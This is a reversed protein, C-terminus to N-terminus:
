PDGAPRLSSSEPITVRLLVPETEGGRVRVTRSGALNAGQVVVTYEQDELTSFRFWGDPDTPAEAEQFPHYVQVRAKPVPRGTGDEIIRGRLILGRRLQLIMPQGDFDISQQIPLYDRQFTLRLSYEGHVQRNVNELHFWGERDTVMGSRSFGHDFPTAYHLQVPVGPAPSGDPRLVRGTMTEGDAPLSLRVHHVPEAGTLPISDSLAYTDDHRLLLRYVTDLPLPTLHFRSGGRLDLADSIDSVWHSSAVDAPRQEFLISIRAGPVAPQIEGFIAGARKLPVTVIWPDGGVPVDIWDQGIRLNPHYGILGPAEIRVKGPVEVRIRAEGNEIPLAEPMTFHERPRHVRKRVSLTGSPPPAGDPPAFRFVVEREPQEPEPQTLDIVLDEIPDTLELDIRRAGATIALPGEWLDILVFEGGGAVPTVPVDRSGTYNAYMSNGQRTQTRWGMVYRLTPQGARNTPLDDLSGIVRGAIRLPARLAVQLPDSETGIGRLWEFRHGPARVLCHYLSGRRLRNLVFRGDADTVALVPARDVEHAPGAGLGHEELILLLEAGAVPEGSVASVVTGTVPRARTLQHQRDVGPALTMTVGREEEFGDASVEFRFPWDDTAHALEFWGAEDTTGDVRTGWVGPSFEFTGQIRANAVPQDEPDVLRMRAPFGPKLVLEVPEASRGPEAEIPGVFAPAFGEYRTWLFVQGYDVRQAFEGNTVGISYGWVNGQRRSQGQIPWRPEIPLPSGDETRISGSILIRDTDDYVRGPEVGYEGQVEAIRAIREQDTWVQAALHAAGMSSLWVVGVAGCAALLSLLASFWSLRFRPRYGPVLLREIRDRLSSPRSSAGFATLAGHALDGGGRVTRDALDALAQSYVAPGRTVSVALADCCAEREIRIQRSIWWVFPNFFLFAEIVLQGLNVLYDHRRIHALEHALVAQLHGVPQGTLLSAPLLVCPQLVGMVAATVLHDGVLVRIPRGIGLRDALATVWTAVRADELARCGRCVRRAGAIMRSARAMMLGVGILWTVLGIRVWDVRRVVSTFPSSEAGAVLSPHATVLGAPPLVEHPVTPVHEAVALTISGRAPAPDGDALQRWQWLFGTGLVIALLGGLAIRYRANMCRAPVALLLGALAAAVLAGLWLSHLLAEFLGLWAPSDLWEFLRKV